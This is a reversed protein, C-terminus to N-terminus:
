RKAMVERKWLEWARQYGGLDARRGEEPDLYTVPEGLAIAQAQLHANLQLYISRGVVGSLSASVVVAGHGRMLAAAKSGLTQALARGLAPSRVLMDTMGAVDRIEFVPVGEWLFAAMHYLPRLPATSVGFPIVAPSHNHVVAQVDPRAQYIEGHIFREVYLTRGQANVPNSNLDYEMIDDATVLAPALSRSLLYRNPDQDHRASVHGYGDLIGHDALIHNAAVLDEILQPNAPGASSSVRRAARRSTVKRKSPTTKM